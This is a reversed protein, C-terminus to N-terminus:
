HIMICHVYIKIYISNCYVWLCALYVDIEAYASELAKKMRSTFATQRLGQRRAKRVGRWVGCGGGLVERLAVRWEELEM